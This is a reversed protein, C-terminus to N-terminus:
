NPERVSSRNRPVAIRLVGNTYNSTSRSLDYETPLELVSEFPGTNIETVLTQVASSAEPDDRQGKIALKNGEVSIQLGASTIGSLEVKIVLQGATSVFVNTNPVWYRPRGPLHNM